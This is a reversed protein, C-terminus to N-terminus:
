GIKFLTAMFNTAPIVLCTPFNTNEDPDKNDKILLQPEPLACSNIEEHLFGMESNSLIDSFTEAFKKADEHTNTLDPRCIPMAAM